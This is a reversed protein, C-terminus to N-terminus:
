PTLPMAYTSVSASAPVQCVSLPMVEGRCKKERGWLAWGLAPPRSVQLQAPHAAAQHTGRGVHDTDARCGGYWTSSGWFPAEKVPVQWSSWPM